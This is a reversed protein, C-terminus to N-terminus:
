ESKLWNPYAVMPLVMVEALAANQGIAMQVGTELLEEWQWTELMGPQEEPVDPVKSFALLLMRVPFDNLQLMQQLWQLKAQLASQMFDDQQAYAATVMLGIRGDDMRMLGASQWSEAPIIFQSEVGASQLAAQLYEAQEANEQPADNLWQIAQISGGTMISLLQNLRAGQNISLLAQMWTEKTVTEM